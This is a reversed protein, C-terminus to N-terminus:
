KADLTRTPVILYGREGFAHVVMDLVAGIDRCQRDVVIDILVDGELPQPVIKDMDAVQGDTHTGQFVDHHPHGVLCAGNPIAETLVQLLGLGHAAILGACLDIAFFLPDPHPLAREDSKNGYGGAPAADQDIGQEGVAERQGSQGGVAPFCLELGNGFVVLKTQGVQQPFKNVEYLCFFGGPGDLAFFEQEVGDFEFLGLRSILFVMVLGEINFVLKIGQESLGDGSWVGFFRCAELLRHGFVPLVNEREDIVRCYRVIVISRFPSDPVYLDFELNRSLELGALLM